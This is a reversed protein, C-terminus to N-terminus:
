LAKGTNTTPLARIKQWRNNWKYKNVEGRDWVGASIEKMYLEDGLIKYHRTRWGDVNLFIEQDKMYTKAVESYGGADVLTKDPLKEIVKKNRFFVDYKNGGTLLDQCKFRYEFKMKEGRKVKSIPM